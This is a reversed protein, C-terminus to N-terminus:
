LYVRGRGRAVSQRLRRQQEQTTMQQRQNASNQHQNSVSRGREITSVDLPHGIPPLAWHHCTRLSEPMAALQVLISGHHPFSRHVNWVPAPAESVAFRFHTASSRKLVNEAIDIKM